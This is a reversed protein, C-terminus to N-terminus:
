AFLRILIFSNQEMVLVVDGVGGGEERGEYHLASDRRAQSLRFSPDRNMSSDLRRSQSHFMYFRNQQDGRQRSQSVALGKVFSFSTRKYGDDINIQHPNKVVTVALNGT